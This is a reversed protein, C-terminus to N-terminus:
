LLDLKSYFGKFGFNYFDHEDIVEFVKNDDIVKGVKITSVYKKVITKDFSNFKVVEIAYKTKEFMHPIEIFQENYITYDSLDDTDQINYILVVLISKDVPFTDLIGIVKETDVMKLNEIVILYPVTRHLKFTESNYQSFKIEYVQNPKFGRKIFNMCFTKGVGTTGIFLLVQMSYKESYNNLRHISKIMQAIQSNQNIVHTNLDNRIDQVNISHNYNCSDYVLISIIAVFISIVSLRVWKRRSSSRHSVDTGQNNIVEKDVKKVLIPVQGRYHIECTDLLNTAVPPVNDDLDHTALKNLAADDLDIDMPSVNLIEEECNM